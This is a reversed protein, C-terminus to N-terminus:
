KIKFMCYIGALVPIIPIIAFGFINASSTIIKIVFSISIMSIILGSIKVIWKYTKSKTFVFKRLLILVILIILLFCSFIFIFLIGFLVGFIAAIGKGLEQSFTQSFRILM